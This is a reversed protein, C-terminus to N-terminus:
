PLSPYRWWISTLQPITSLVRSAYWRMAFCSISGPVASRQPRSPQRCEIRSLLDMLVHRNIEHISQQGIYPLIDKDFIRLIQSLTSQRGEKLSLRRFDIWQKFISDFTRDNSLRVALRQQKRQECPNCGQAIHSRAADRRERADRLGVQPYSGFSMRKQKGEWCYRFHWIESCQATVNLFLGDIDALTYDRGTARAHRIAMETLAM